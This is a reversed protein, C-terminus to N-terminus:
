GETEVKRLGEFGKALAGSIRTTKFVVGPFVQEVRTNFKSAGCSRYGNGLMWEQYAVYVETGRIRDSPLGREYNDTLFQREHDCDLRHRDKMQLGEPCEEFVGRAIVKALGQLAWGAIGPMESAIIKDALSVDKEEDTIQENFPIIRLRRWIGDSRDFFTPLSNTAMEFRARCKAVYKDCNKKEVEISGGSVYDKLAGEIAHYQGRGTDTPLEGCINVKAFALPWAQFRAIIGDLSVFSVNGEGLLKKQIDLLVTKGNCGFGYLQFFVEYRTINTMLLGLMRQLIDRGGETPQVRNLYATFLPTAGAPNWPYDVFDLSFYDPTIPRIHGIPERGEAAATAYALVNVLLGNAFAIWNEASEGTSLFCPMQVTGPLGCLDHARLNLMVSGAYATTVYNKLTSDARLFTALEEQMEGDPTSTWGRRSDFKYWEGRWHRVVLHGDKTLRERTFRNATDSHPPASPKGGKQGNVPSSVKRGDMVAATTETTPEQVQPIYVRSNM